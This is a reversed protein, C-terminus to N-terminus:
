IIGFDINDIRYVYRDGTSASYTTEYEVGIGMTPTTSDMQKRTINTMTDKNLNKLEEDIQLRSGKPATQDKNYNDIADTLRESLEKTGDPKTAVYWWRKNNQDRKSDYVTGKYYQVEITKMGNLEYTQGGWTYTLTYDGNSLTGSYLTISEKGSLDSGAINVGDKELTYNLHKNINSVNVKFTVFTWDIIANNEITGSGNSNLSQM